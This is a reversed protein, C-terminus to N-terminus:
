RILIDARPLQHGKWQGQITPWDGSTSLVEQGDARCLITDESKTGTISPNWAFAQDALVEERATPNAIIDRPLYGCPGGQHHHAWQDPFGEARYAAQGEAYVDCLKAGPRTASILAADVNAVAQHKAQLEDTIPGFAGLRTCSVILGDREACSILMFYKEVAKGTPLPHRFNVIRDDSGVLLVWFGCNRDALEAAIMGALHNESQGPAAARAVAELAAVTDKALARHRIIEAETLQWRLRNFDADLIPADLGPAPADLAVKMSGVAKKFAGAAAAPDHYPFETIEIEADALEEGRLRTAEINNTLLAARDRTILLWSCGADCAIGVHNHAGCTYWSFNCRRSLVVAQLGHADLYQCIRDHKVRREQTKDM